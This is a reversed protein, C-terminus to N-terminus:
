SSPSEARRGIRAALRTGRRQLDAELRPHARGTMRLRELLRWAARTAALAGGPDGLRHERLKAVEIWAIAGLAGGAAAATQWAEAAEPWRGLRRLVRAREAALREDTWRATVDWAATGPAPGLPGGRGNALDGRWGARPPRGGFHPRT